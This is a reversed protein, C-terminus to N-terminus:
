EADILNFEYEGSSLPFVPQPAVIATSPILMAIMIAASKM